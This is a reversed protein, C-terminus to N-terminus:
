CLFENNKCKIWRAQFCNIEKWWKWIWCLTGVYEARHYKATLGPWQVLFKDAIPYLLKGTLSLHQVRCFSEVFIIHAPQKKLFLFHLVFAAYCIPVCTGIWHMCIFYILLCSLEVPFYHSFRHLSVARAGLWNDTMRVQVTAFLSM